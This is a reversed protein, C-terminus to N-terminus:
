NESEKCECRITFHKSLVTPNEEGDQTPFIFDNEATDTCKKGDSCEMSGCVPDGSARTISTIEWSYGFKNTDVRFMFMANKENSSGNSPNTEKGLRELEHREGDKYHFIGTFNLSDPLDTMNNTCDNIMDVHGMLFYRRFQVTETPQSCGYVALVMIILAPILHFGRLVGEM